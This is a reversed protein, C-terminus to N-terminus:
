WHRRPQRVRYVTKARLLLTLAEEHRDKELLVSGAVCYHDPPSSSPCGQMWNSYAEAELQSRPDACQVCLEQLAQALPHAHAYL